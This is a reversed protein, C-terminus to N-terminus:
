FIFGFHNKKVGVIRHALMHSCLPHCAVQSSGLVHLKLAKDMGYRDVFITHRLSVGSRISYQSCECVSFLFWQLGFSFQLNCEFQFGFAQMSFNNIYMGVGLQQFFSGEFIYL